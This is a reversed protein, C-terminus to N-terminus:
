EIFEIQITDTRIEKEGKLDFLIERSNIIYMPVGPNYIYVFGNSDNIEYKSKKINDKLDKDKLGMNKLLSEVTKKSDKPDVNLESYFTCSSEKYNHETFYIRTDAKLGEKSYPSPLTQSYTLEEKPDFEVGFPFHFLKLEKTCFEEIGEQKSLADILPILIANYIKEEELSINKKVDNIVQIYTDSIAKWNEIKVDSGNEDTTYIVEIDTLSKKNKKLKEPLNLSYLIDCKYKWSIKYSTATSDLVKFFADYVISDNKITVDNKIRETSKVMKFKYSDGKAWYAIFQIKTTDIETKTQSFNITPYSLLTVIFLFKITFNKM